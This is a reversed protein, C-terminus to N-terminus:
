YRETNKKLGHNVMGSRSISTKVEIKVPLEAFRKEWNTNIKEWQKNKQRYFSNGLGYIDSKLLRSKELAQKIRNRVAEALRQELSHTIKSEKKLSVPGTFDIIKGEVTTKIKIQPQNLKEDYLPIIQQDTRKTKVTAKIDKKQPYTINLVATPSQGSIFNWGQAEENNLIGVMKTNRFSVLGGLAVGPKKETLDGESDNESGSNRKQLYIAIPEIGPTALKNLVEKGTQTIATGLEKETLEILNKLGTGAVPEIPYEFNLIEEVKADTVAIQITPRSQRTRSLADMVPVLGKTQALTDSIVLIKLHSYFINRSVKKRINAIAKIPTSGWASVTWFPPKGETGEENQPGLTNNIQLILKYLDRRPNYDYGAVLIIARNEPEQRDWCGSILIIILFIYLILIKNKM